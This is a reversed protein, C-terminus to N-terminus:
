HQEELVTWHFQFRSVNKQIYAVLALNLPLPNHMVDFTNRKKIKAIVGVALFQTTLNDHL